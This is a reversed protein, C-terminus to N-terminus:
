KITVLRIVGNPERIPLCGKYKKLDHRWVAMWINEERKRDWEQALNWKAWIISLAIIISLVGIIVLEM